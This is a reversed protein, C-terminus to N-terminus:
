STRISGMAYHEEIILEVTATLDRKEKAAEERIRTALERPLRIYFIETNDRRPRGQNKM